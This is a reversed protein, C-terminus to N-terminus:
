NNILLYTNSQIIKKLSNFISHYTVVFLVGKELTKTHLDTQFLIVNKIEKDILKEPNSTNLFWSRMQHLHNQFENERSSIRSVRLTLIFVIYLKSHNTHLSSYHLHQHRDPSKVHVPVESDRMICVLMLILVNKSFHYTKVQIIKANFQLILLMVNHLLNKLNEDENTWIFLNHTDM